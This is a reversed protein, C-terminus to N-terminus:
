LSSLILPTSGRDKLLCDMPGLDIGKYMAITLDNVHAPVLKCCQGHEAHLDSDLVELPFFDMTLTLQTGKM